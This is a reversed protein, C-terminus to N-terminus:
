SASSRGSRRAARRVLLIAALAAVLLAVDWGFDAFLLQLDEPM